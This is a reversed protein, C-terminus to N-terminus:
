LQQLDVYPIILLKYKMNENQDSVKRKLVNIFVQRYICNQFKTTILAKLQSGIQVYLCIKQILSAKNSLLKDVSKIM